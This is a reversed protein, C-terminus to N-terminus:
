NYLFPRTKKTTTKEESAKTADFLFSAGLRSLPFLRRKDQKFKGRLTAEKGSPANEVADLM